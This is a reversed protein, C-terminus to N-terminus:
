ADRGQQSAARGRLSHAMLQQQRMAEATRMRERYREERTIESKISFPLATAEDGPDATPHNTVRESGNPSM